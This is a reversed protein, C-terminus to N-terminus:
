YTTCRLGGSATPTCHTVTYVGDVLTTCRIGGAYTPECRSITLAEATCAWLALLAFTLVSLKLM